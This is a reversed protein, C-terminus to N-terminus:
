CIQRSPTSDSTQSCVLFDSFTSTAQRASTAPPADATSARVGKVKNDVFAIFADSDHISTYSPRNKDACTLSYERERLNIIIDM